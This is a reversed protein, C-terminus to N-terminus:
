CILGNHCVKDLFGDLFQGIYHKMDDLSTKIYNVIEHIQKIAGHKTNAIIHNRVLAPTM